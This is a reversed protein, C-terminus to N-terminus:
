IPMSIMFTGLDGRWGKGLDTPCGFEIFLSGRVLWCFFHEGCEPVSSSWLGGSGCTMSASGSLSYGTDCTFTWTVGEATPGGDYNGNSFSGINDPMGCDGVSFM